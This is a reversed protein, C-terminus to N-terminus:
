EFYNYEEELNLKEIADPSPHPNFDVKKYYEGNEWKMPKGVLRPDETKMLYHDLREALTEKTNQYEARGAVNVMQDPDNRLDYLELSPRKAFALNFLPTIEPDDRNVLIHMKTPSAYHLMHADVDGFLPPDGAPWREDQYNKILLYDLTQIARGPYGLGNERCLAHRERATVIFDRETEIQGSM